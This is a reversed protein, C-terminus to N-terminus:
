IVFFLLVKSVALSSPVTRLHTIPRGVRRGGRQYYTGMGPSDIIQAEARVAAQKGARGNVPGRDQKIRKCLLYSVHQGPMLFGNVGQGDAGIAGPQYGGTPIFCGNKVIQVASM